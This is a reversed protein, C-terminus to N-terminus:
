SGYSMLDALTFGDHAVLFNVTKGPGGQDNYDGYDGYFADAYSIGAGSVDGKLFRRSADRFKGNWEGWGNPLEGVNYAGIEWPEAVVQLNQASALSAIDLLLQANTNVAYSPAADRALESALDFRFGDVGMEGSWFGLSDTVLRRGAATTVNFNNGVGTTEWY